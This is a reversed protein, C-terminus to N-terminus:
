RNETILVDFTGIPADLNTAKCRSVAFTESGTAQEKNCIRMAEKVVETVIGNARIAYYTKGGAPEVEFTYYGEGTIEDAKITGDALNVPTKNLYPGSWTASLDRGCSNSATIAAELDNTLLSLRMPYCGTDFKLRISADALAGMNTLMTQAKAKDGRYDAVLKAAFLGLIALVILLEVLTFGGQKKLKKLV